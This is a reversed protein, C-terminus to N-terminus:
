WDFLDSYDPIDYDDLADEIEDELGSGGGLGNIGTGLMGKGGSTASPSTGLYGDAGGLPGGCAACVLLIVAALLAALWKRKNM